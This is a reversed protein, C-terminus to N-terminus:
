LRPQGHLDEVLSAVGVRPRGGARGAAGVGDRPVRQGAMRQGLPREVAQGLELAHERRGLAARELRGMGSTPAKASLRAARVERGPRSARTPRTSTAPVAPPMTALAILGPSASAYWKQPCM